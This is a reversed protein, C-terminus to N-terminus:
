YSYGGRTEAVLHIHSTVCVGQMTRSTATDVTYVCTIAQFHFLILTFETYCIFHSVNRIQHNHNKCLLILHNWDLELPFPGIKELLNHLLTSCM